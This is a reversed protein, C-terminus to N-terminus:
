FLDKLIRPKYQSNDIREFQKEVDTSEINTKLMSLLVDIKAINNKVVRRERRIERLMSAIQYMECANFEKGNDKPKELRHLIDSLKIDAISLRKVFEEKCLKLNPLLKDIGSSWTQFNDCIEQISEKDRITTSALCESNTNTEKNSFERILYKKRERKPISNEIISVAKSYDFLTAQNAVTTLTIRHKNDFKVYSNAKKIVFKNM